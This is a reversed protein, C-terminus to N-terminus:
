MGDTVRDLILWPSKLSVPLRISMSETQLEVVVADWPKYKQTQIGTSVGVSGNEFWAVNFSESPQSTRRRADVQIRMVVITIIGTSQNNDDVKASNM